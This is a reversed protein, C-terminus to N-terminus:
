RARRSTAPRARRRRPVLAPDARRAAGGGRDGRRREGPRGPRRPHAPRPGPAFTVDGSGRDLLYAETQPGARRLDDVPRWIEFTRGDFERAAAGLEVTGAPMEVGLMLDLPEATHVLPAHAARLVQGPLGTGM